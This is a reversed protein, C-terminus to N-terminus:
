LITNYILKSATRLDRTLYKIFLVCYMNIYNLKKTLLYILIIIIYLFFQRMTQLM